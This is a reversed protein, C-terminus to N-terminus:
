DVQGPAHAGDVVTWIGAEKARAILPEIPLVVATPSTIHSLFLVRTRPTVGQWVTEVVEQPDDLPLPLQRVVLPAGRHEAVYTWTRQLAGYEHDTSLIEDGPALPLSHAVVNLATTVNPVYVVDDADAGLYAALATRADALLERQRRGL